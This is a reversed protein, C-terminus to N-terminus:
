PTSFNPSLTAYYNTGDFYYGILDKAGISSSISPLLGGPWQVNGPHTLSYSGSGGVVVRLLLNCPGSPNTFTLVCNDTMTIVQKNGLTWDITKASGSNGNNIEADFHAQSQFELPGTMSDGDVNIYDADHDHTGLSYRADGRAENYYQPHDDDLLGSLQGHDAISINGTSAGKFARFDMWSQTEAVDVYVFSAYYTNTISTSSRIILSGIAIFEEFPMDGTVIGAIDNIIGERADAISTYKNQSQIAIIPYNVDNTAFIHCLTFEDEGLETQQWAGGTFENFAVRGSGGSFNKFLVDTAGEHTWDGSAGERYLVLYSSDGKTIEDTNIVIDEDRIIGAAVGITLDADSATNTVEDYAVVGTFGLGSQYKTGETLHHYAHLNWDWQIGHREDGFYISKSDTDDWYVVAVYAYDRLIALSWTQTVNLNESADLYFYNAGQGLIALTKPTSISYKVGKIYYEYTGSITLEETGDNFSISSDTQNVFGTPEARKTNIEELLDINADADDIRSNLPDSIQDRLDGFTITKMKEPNVEDIDWVLIFDSVHLSLLTALEEPHKFEIEAM